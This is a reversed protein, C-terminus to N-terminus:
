YAGGVCEGLGRELHRNLCELYLQREATARGEEGHGKGVPVEGKHREDEM